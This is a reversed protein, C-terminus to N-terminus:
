IEEDNSIIELEAWWLPSLKPAAAEPSIATIERLLTALDRASPRQKPDPNLCFTIVRCLQTFDEGEIQNKLMPDIMDTLPKRGVLYDSAWMLLEGDIESSPYKGTVIELLLMGYQYITDEKNLNKSILPGSNGACTITNDLLETDSIKASCDDTLLISNSNLISPFIPPDLQFMHDICYAIGMTIRMRAPWNLDMAEKDTISLHSKKEHLSVYLFLIHQYKSHLHDHLTGNPAYEFVMMRAFPTDEACYGLLNM